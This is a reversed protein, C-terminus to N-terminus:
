KRKFSIKIKISVKIRIRIKFRKIRQNSLDMKKRGTNGLCDHGGKFEVDLGVKCMGDGANLRRFSVEEAVKRFMEKGFSGPVSSNLEAAIKRLAEKSCQVLKYYYVTEEADPRVKGPRKVSKRVVEKQFGLNELNKLWTCMATSPPKFSPPESFKMQLKEDAIVDYISFQALLFSMVVFFKLGRITAM